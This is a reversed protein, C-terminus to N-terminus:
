WHCAGCFCAIRVLNRCRAWAGYRLDEVDPRLAAVLLQSSVYSLASYIDLHYSEAVLALVAGIALGGHRKSGGKPAEGSRESVPTLCCSSQSKGYLRRAKLLRRGLSLQKISDSKLLRLSGVFLGGNAGSHAHVATSAEANPDNEHEQLARCLMQLPMSPELM